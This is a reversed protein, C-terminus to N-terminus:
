GWCSSTYSESLIPNLGISISIIGLEQPYRLKKFTRFIKDSVKSILLSNVIILAKTDDLAYRAPQLM